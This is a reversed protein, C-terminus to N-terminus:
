TITLHKGIEQIFWNMTDRITTYNKEQEDFFRKLENEPQYKDLVIKFDNGLKHQYVLRRNNEIHKIISHSDFYEDKLNYLLIYAYGQKIDGTINPNGPHRYDIFESFINQVEEKLLTKKLKELKIKISKGKIEVRNSISRGKSDGHSSIDRINMINTITKKYQKDEEKVRKFFFNLRKFKSSETDQINDKDYEMIFKNLLIEIQLCLKRCYEGFDKNMIANVAEQNEKELEEKMSQYASINLWEHNSYDILYIKTSDIKIEERTLKEIYLFISQLNLNIQELLIKQLNDM